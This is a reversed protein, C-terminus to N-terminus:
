RRGRICASAFLMAMVARCVRRDPRRAPTRGSPCRPRVTRKWTCFAPGTPSRYRGKSSRPPLLYNWRRPVYFNSMKLGGVWGLSGQSTQVFAKGAFRAARDSCSQTFRSRCGAGLMANAREPCAACAGRRPRRLDRRSWEQPSRSRRQCGAPRRRMCVGPAGPEGRRALGRRPAGRESWALRFVPLGRRPAGRESWALRFM